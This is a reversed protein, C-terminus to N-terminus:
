WRWKPGRWVLGTVPSTRKGSCIRHHTWIPFKLGTSWSSRRLFVVFITSCLSISNAVTLVKHVRTVKDIFSNQMSRQFPFVYFLLNMGNQGRGPSLSPIKDFINRGPWRAPTNMHSGLDRYGPWGPGEYSCMSTKVFFLTALRSRPFRALGTSRAWIFLGKTRTVSTLQRHISM